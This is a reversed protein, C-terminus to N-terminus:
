AHDTESTTPTASKFPRSSLSHAFVIIDLVSAWTLVGTGGCASCSVGTRTCYEALFENPTM